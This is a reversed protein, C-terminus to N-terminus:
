FIGMAILRLSYGIVVTSITNFVMIIIFWIEELKQYERIIYTIGWVGIVWGMVLTISFPNFGLPNTESGGMSLIIATLIIDVIRLITLVACLIYNLKVMKYLNETDNNKTTTM